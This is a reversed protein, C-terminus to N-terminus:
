DKPPLLYVETGIPLGEPPFVLPQGASFSVENNDNAGWSVWYKKQTFVDKKLIARGMM